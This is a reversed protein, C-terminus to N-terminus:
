LVRTGGSVQTGQMRRKKAKKEDVGTGLNWDTLFVLVFLLYSFIVSM